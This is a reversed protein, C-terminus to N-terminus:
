RCADTRTYVTDRKMDSAGGAAVKAEGEMLDLAIRETQTHIYYEVYRYGSRAISKNGCVEYAEGGRCVTRTKCQSPNAPNCETVTECIRPTHEIWCMYVNEYWTCSENGAQIESNAHDVTYKGIVDYKQGSDSAPIILSDGPKLDKLNQKTKFLFVHEEGDSLKLKLNVKKKSQIEVKASYRGAPIAVDQRSEKLAIAQGVEVAGEFDKCGTMLSLGMLATIMTKSLTMKGGLFTTKFTGTIVYAFAKGLPGPTM